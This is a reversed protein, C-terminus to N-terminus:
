YFLFSEDSSSHVLPKVAATKEQYSTIFEPVLTLQVSEASMHCHVWLIKAPRSTM